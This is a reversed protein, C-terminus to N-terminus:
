KLEEKITGCTSMSKGLYPNQIEKTESLWYAGKGNNTMPCFQYYVTKGMLGFTKIAKYLQDSLEAFESRQIDISEASNITGTKGNLNNLIEMWKLHPDGTLLNMDVNGLADQIRKSAERTTVEDDNVLANKLEIYRDFVVNLQMIFDMDVKIQPSVVPIDEKNDAPQQNNGPMEMGPQMEGHQHGTSVRGGGPNMMSPKGELQASADISYTGSTAIEEGEQLGNMVVWSDDLSPGLEIERMKFIPESSGPQKVYVISRTGTWLISSRPIIFRDGYQSLNAKIIGTAFMEPKLRGSANNIEVRVRAVRTVPNIVPDIFGIRGAFNEGPLAQVKFTLKDGNKLFPLDTEYADFMIWVSSLDAVVFLITGPNVYDGKNVRRDTIAGSTNAVIEFENKVKGSEEIGKIQEDTLKWQRLKEMAAEYIEYQSSKMKAAELLEQQATVLEPSYLIALPQGKRVSEGTFNVMLEELRGPMQSVQSQVLREDAQVKGYLRVAKVPLQRKVVSTQIDALEAAEKTLQIADPDIGASTEQNLPILDMGCIPCKGPHDMRIQPHMACTWIISKETQGADKNSIENKQPQHFFIWGLFLGGIAFLTYRAYKSSFIKIM